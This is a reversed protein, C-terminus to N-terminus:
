VRRFVNERVFQENDNATPAVDMIDHLREVAGPHQNLISAM